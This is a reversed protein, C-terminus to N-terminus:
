KIFYGVAAAVIALVVYKVIEFSIKKWKDGPERELDAVRNDVSDVSKKVQELTKTMSAIADGQRQIALMLQSMQEIKEDHEHLRRRFSEHERENAASDERLKGIAEEHMVCFDREM